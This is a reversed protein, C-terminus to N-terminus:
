KPPQLGPSTLWNAMHSVTDLRRIKRRLADMEPGPKLLAIQAELKAKEAEINSTFTHPVSRRRKMAAEQKRTRVTPNALGIRIHGRGPTLEWIFLFDFPFPGGADIPTVEIKPTDRERYRM